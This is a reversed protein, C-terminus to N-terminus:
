DSHLRKKTEKKENAKLIKWKEICKQKRQKEQTKYSILKSLNQQRILGNDILKFVYLTLTM